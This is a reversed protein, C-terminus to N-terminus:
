KEDNKNLIFKRALIIALVLIVIIIFWIVYNQYYFGRPLPKVLALRENGSKDVAKIYIFNSLSQDKPIYPSETEQWKDSPIKEPNNRSEFVFYKDIGSQKDQTDFVIFYKGNLFGDQQSILPYFIEPPTSDDDELTKVVSADFVSDLFLNSFVELKSGDGDNALFEAKDVHFNILGIEKPIFTISLIEGRKGSFGGPIIGSFTFYGQKNIFSPKNIWFNILSNGENIEKIIIKDEPYYIKIDIANFPKQSDVVLFVRSEQGVYVKDTSFYLNVDQARALKFGLLLFLSIFLLLIKIHGKM